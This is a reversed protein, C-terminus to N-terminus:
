ARLGSWAAADGGGKRDRRVPVLSDDAGDLISQLLQTVEEWSESDFFDRAADLKRVQNADARLTPIPGPGTPTPTPGPDDPGDDMEERALAAAFESLPERPEAQERGKWHVWVLSTVSLSLSAVSLLVAAISSTRRRMPGKSAANRTTRAVAPTARGSWRRVSELRAGRPLALTSWP